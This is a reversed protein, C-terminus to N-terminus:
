TGQLTKVPSLCVSVYSASLHLNVKKKRELKLNRVNQEKKPGYKPKNEFLLNKKKFLVFHFFGIVYSHFTRHINCLVEM